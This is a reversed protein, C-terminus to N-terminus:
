KFFNNKVRQYLQAEVNLGLIQTTFHDIPESNKLVIKLLFSFLLRM